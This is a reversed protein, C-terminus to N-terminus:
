KVVEGLHRNVSLSRKYRVMPHITKALTIVKNDLFHNSLARETGWVNRLGIVRVDPIEWSQSAAGTEDERLTFMADIIKMMEDAQQRNELNFVMAYEVTRGIMGEATKEIIMERPQPWSEDWRVASARLFIEFEHPLNNDRFTAALEAGHEPYSTYMHYVLKPRTSKFIDAYRDDLPVNYAGEFGEGIIIEDGYDSIERSVLEDFKETSPLKERIKETARKKFEDRDSLEM